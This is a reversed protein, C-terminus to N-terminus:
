ECDSALCGSVGANFVDIVCSFKECLSVVIIPLAVSKAWRALFKVEERHEINTAYMVADIKELNEVLVSTAEITDSVLDTVRSIGPAHILRTIANAEITNKHILLVNIM